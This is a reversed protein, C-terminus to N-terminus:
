LLNVRPPPTYEVFEPIRPVYFTKTPGGKWATEAEARTKFLLPYVGGGDNDVAFSFLKIRM